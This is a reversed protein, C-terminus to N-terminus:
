EPNTLRNSANRRNQTIARPLFALGLLFGPLMVMVWYFNNERAFLGIVMSFGAFWLLPLLADRNTRVLYAWGAFSLFVMLAALWQPVFQLFSLTSMDAIVGNPGRMGQWPPSPLDGPLRWASVAKWHLAMALAFAAGAGAAGLARLWKRSLLALLGMLGLFLLAFERFALAAMGLALAWWWYGSLYLGLALTLCLGAWTEHMTIQAPGIMSAGSLALIGALLVKELLNAAPDRRLWVLLSAVVLLWALVTLGGPGIASTILALTPPRVTYFPSLPYDRARHLSTAAQYYSEGQEMRSVIDRYLVVDRTPAGATEAPTDTAPVSSAAHVGAGAMLLCLALLWKAFKGM